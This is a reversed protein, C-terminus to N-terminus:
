DATKQMIKREPINHFREIIKRLSDANEQNVTVIKNLTEATLNTKEIKEIIDEVGHENEDSVSQVTTIQQLIDMLIKSFNSSVEHIEAIASHISAVSDNTDDCSAAFNTFQTSISNEMLEIINAFCINIQNINKNTENCILQIESATKSSSLALNGIESAVVAFGRGADGAKAAEISANLSLLNTQDTLDLIQTVMDNIRTLSQLNVMAADIDKKNQAIKLNSTTIAQDTTQKMQSSSSSLIQSRNTSIQVKEEVQNVMEGLHSIEDYVAEITENTVNISAALEETTASNDFVCNILTSSADTMTISSDNLSSSCQCLTGVIDGLTDYLSDMAAYINAVECNANKYRPLTTSPSLDLNQLRLIDQEILKLPKVHYRVVFISILVILIYSIICIIGLSHRNAFAKAYIENEMDDLIIAWDRDPMYKYLALYQKKDSGTYTVTNYLKDPHQKITDIISLVSDDEITTAILSQDENFIYLNSSINIMSCKANALGEVTLLDLTQELETSYPGGGVYGIIEKTTHDYVPCYMSLTLKGSAPSPIIGTDYLGDASKMADQLSKLSDGERCIMGIYNATSHALVKSNWDAIYIGEWQSLGSFYDETYQQAAKQLQSNTPDKLLNQICPAKSFSVLLRESSEVYENIISEKAELSTRMNDIATSKMASTMNRNAIFFLLIMCLTVTLSLSLTIITSLKVRKLM